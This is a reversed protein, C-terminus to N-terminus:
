WIKGSYPVNDLSGNIVQAHYDFLDPPETSTICNCQRSLLTMVLANNM